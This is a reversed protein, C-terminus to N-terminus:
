DNKIRLGDEATPRWKRYYDDIKKGFVRTIGIGTRLLVEHLPSRIIIWFAEYGDM